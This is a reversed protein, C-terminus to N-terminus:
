ASAPPITTFIIVCSLPFLPDDRIVADATSRGRTTAEDPKVAYPIQRASLAKKFEAEKPYDYEIDYYIYTRHTHM